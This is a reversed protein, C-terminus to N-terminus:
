YKAQNSIQWRLFTANFSVAVHHATTIKKPEKPKDRSAM